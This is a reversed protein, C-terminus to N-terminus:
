SEKYCDLCDFVIALKTILHIDLNSMRYCGQPIFSAQLQGLYCGDNGELSSGHFGLFNLDFSDEM